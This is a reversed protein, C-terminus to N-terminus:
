KKISQNLDGIYYSSLMDTAQSSHPRGRDKTDYAVTADQGCHSIITGSGGPHQDMYSTVDYIKGSILLWCSSASNHKALEAMSLMMNTSTASTKSTQSPIQNVQQKQNKQFVFGAAFIVVVVAWFLFFTVSVWTKAKM